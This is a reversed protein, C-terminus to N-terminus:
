EGQTRQFLGQLHEMFDPDLEGSRDLKECYKLFCYIAEYDHPLMVKVKEGTQPNIYVCEEHSYWRKINEFRDSMGETLERYLKTGNERVVAPIYTGSEELERHLGWRRLKLCFVDFDLM